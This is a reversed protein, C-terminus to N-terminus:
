DGLSTTDRLSPQDSGNCQRSPGESSGGTTGSYKRHEHLAQVLESILDKLRKLDNEGCVAQCLELWNRTQNGSM